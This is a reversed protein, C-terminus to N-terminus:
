QWPWRSETDFNKLSYYISSVPTYRSEIAGMSSSLQTGWGEFPTSYKCLILFESTAQCNKATESHNLYRTENGVDWSDLGMGVLTDDGLDPPNETWTFLYNLRVHQQM